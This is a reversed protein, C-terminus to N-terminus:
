NTMYYIWSFGAAEVFAILYVARAFRRKKIKHRFYWQGFLAGGLGGFAALFLMNQERIRYAGRRAREKDIAFLLFAGTNMVLLFTLAVLLAWTNMSQSYLNIPKWITLARCDFHRSPHLFRNASFSYFRVTKLAM